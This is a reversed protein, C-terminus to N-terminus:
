FALNNIAYQVSNPKKAIDQITKLKTLKKLLSLLFKPQLLVKPSENQQLTEPQLTTTPLTTTPLTTTPLTEIYYIKNDFTKIKTVPIKALELFEEWTNFKKDNIEMIIEGIPYKIFKGLKNYDLDALYITVNDNQNSTNTLIRSIDAKMNINIDKFREIHEYTIISFILGNNEVFYSPYNDLGYYEPINTKIIELIIKENRIEQTVNDLITVDLIDGEIFWLGIDKLPIKEPYFDFKITGFNDVTKSNISVIIDGAKLYKNLYYKSNIKAIIVGQNNELIKPYKKFLKKKYEDQILKQYNFLLLPKKVVITDIKNGILKQLIMFRYIPVVYSTGEANGTMKSVNIGILYYTDIDKIILPGGSNGPNITADTQIFSDQFGSIIGKTVKINTSGLPFGITIVDGIQKTDLTKFKLINCDTVNKELEIIALDDDPFLHKIKGQIITNQKYIIEINFAYKVVHYCTLIMNNAIFFGTGSSAETNFTNLPHNFDIDKSKINIKVVYNEWEM